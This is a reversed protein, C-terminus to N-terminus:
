WLDSLIMGYDAGVLVEVLSVNDAYCRTYIADGTILLRVSHVCIPM